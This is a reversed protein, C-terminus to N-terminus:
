FQHGQGARIAYFETPPLWESHTKNASQFPLGLIDVPDRLSPNFEIVRNRPIRYKDMLYSAIERACASKGGGPAGIIFPVNLYGNPADFM